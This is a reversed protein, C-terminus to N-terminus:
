CGLADAVAAMSKSKSKSTEFVVPEAGQEAISLTPIKIGMMRRTGREATLQDRRLSAVVRDPRQLGSTCAVVFLRRDTVALIAGRGIESSSLRGHVAAGAAGGLAASVGIKTMGGKAHVDGCSALVTEGPELHESLVEELSKAM